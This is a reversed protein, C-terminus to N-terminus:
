FVWTIRNVAPFVGLAIDEWIISRTNIRSCVLNNIRLVIARLGFVRRITGDAHM